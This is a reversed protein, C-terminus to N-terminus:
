VVREEEDFMEAWFTKFADMEKRKAALARLDAAMKEKAEAYARVLEEHSLRRKEEEEIAKDVEEKYEEMLKAQRDLADIKREVHHRDFRNRNVGTESAVADYKVMMEALKRKRESMDWAERLRRKYKAVKARLEACQGNLRTECIPTTPEETQLVPLQQSADDLEEVITDPPSAHSPARAVRRYNRYFLVRHDPTAALVDAGHNRVFDCLDVGFVNRAHHVIDWCTYLKKGSAVLVGHELQCPHELYKLALHLLHKNSHVTVDGIGAVHLRLINRKNSSGLATADNDHCLMHAYESKKDVYKKV